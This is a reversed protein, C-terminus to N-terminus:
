IAMDIRHPVGHVPASNSNKTSNPQNKKVLLQEFQLAVVKAIAMLTKADEDNWHNSEPAGISIAGSIKRCVLPAAILSQATPMVVDVDTRQNTDRIQVLRGQCMVQGSIGKALSIKRGKGNAEGVLVPVTYYDNDLKFSIAVGAAGFVSQLIIATNQLLKSPSNSSMEAINHVTRLQQWRRQSVKDTQEILELMRSNIEAIHMYQQSYLREKVPRYMSEMVQSMLLAIRDVVAEDYSWLADYQRGSTGPQNETEQAVLTAWFESTDVFLFWEQALASTPSLEIFEVGQISPPQCDPVGFVYVRRCVSGLRSYRRMQEPFNSFRQFGAYFDVALQHQLIQDEIQQSIVNMMAVSRTFRLTDYQGALSRFLSIDM